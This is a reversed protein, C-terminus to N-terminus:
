IKNFLKKLDQGLDKPSRKMLVVHWGSPVQELNDLILGKIQRRLKNRLTAKAVAKNPIVIGFKKQNDKSLHFWTINPLTIKNGKSMTQKFQKDQNLRLSKEFM